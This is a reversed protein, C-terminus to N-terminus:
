IRLAAGRNRVARVISMATLRSTTRGPRGLGILAPKM